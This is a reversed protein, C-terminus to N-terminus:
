RLYLSYYVTVLITGVAIPISFHLTENRIYAQKGSVKRMLMRAVSWLGALIFAAAVIAIIRDPMYLGIVGALKIDGAGMGKILFLPFMVTVTLAVMKLGGSLGSAGEMYFKIGIGIILAITLLRNEIIGTKIDTYVARILLLSIPFAMLM